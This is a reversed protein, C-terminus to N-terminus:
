YMYPSESYYFGKKKGLLLPSELQCREESLGWDGSVKPLDTTEASSHIGQAKAMALHIQATKKIYALLFNCRNYSFKTLIQGWSPFVWRSSRTRKKKKKSM